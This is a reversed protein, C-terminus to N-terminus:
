LSQVMARMEPLRKREALFHGAFFLAMMTPSIADLDVISTEPGFGQCCHGGRSLTLAEVAAASIQGRCAQLADATVGLRGVQDHM